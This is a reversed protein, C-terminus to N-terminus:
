MAFGVSRDFSRAISAEPCACSALVREMRVHLDDVLPFVFVGSVVLGGPAGQPAKSLVM